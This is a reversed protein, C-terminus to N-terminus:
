PWQRPTTEGIDTPRWRPTDCSLFPARATLRESQKSCATAAAQGERISFVHERISLGEKMARKTPSELM